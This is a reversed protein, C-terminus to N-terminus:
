GASFGSAAEPPLPKSFHYGQAFDCGIEKLLSAQEETEVGEAIVELGLTHALEIIMRVVATDEVNEGLGKVFSQDIKLADAPLRKLYSLSSYGTGFDDISFRVGLGRLRDLMATNAALVKVYVTETVDLILCSGELGTEGLVREVTDALDLRSLQLASLNVSMVLSPIRPNEEQWEKARFCSERLIQEGMPIVLGSEEAVPVFESPELLGREPHDWRVLAEMGWLEGTQLDVMPQYHVVFEEQEIARRLDNEVELRTFAREYMASNFVRFDGGEDKVRYMATDAERLLGDADHTRAGGLSIGISAIVYLERGEMIFPRRLEETIREAVQVAQAPDDVADILMVFEDGGFRALTDEPRLCRRLRQAVLTLLLDGVDHGLSDNVVKFGDLDMFLVAVQNHWRRTRRLAQGLRDMFLQRNPLDTLYDHFAQYHLREELGKRETLDYFVGQWYLPEGAEDRVLVAEERLWVVSDDKAMLRYEERFPEGGGEEFRKDAALVRERDDPHLRKPWLKENQWEQPTYGLMQEIQPSTYLSTEPDDVPDIYTVAPIQEVLTRYRQEAARIKQEARKRESIDQIQSVFYLPEGEEDHVMSVSLLAWVVQGEKHFYRKEMQYTRIEGVLMRRVQDLDADLDDPHTIDQFTKGLLEVERYGLMNCLSRNTRLFRGDTGVLAMGIAADDFSRRFREEAERLAEETRKRETIDRTQVVVGKVHPDDLLYTGASEVWRWSGDKHRFRYETRNTAVGGESLAKETEELVHPLDDPHVYDLVNMEGVVEEPAYGLMRGFAPSAYRLTGDPDVITVNESSNEVVSRLWRDDEGPTGSDHRPEDTGGHPTGNGRDNRDRDSPNVNGERGSAGGGYDLIGSPGPSPSGQLGERESRV